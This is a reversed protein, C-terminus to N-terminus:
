VLQCWVLWSVATGAALAVATVVAGVMALV